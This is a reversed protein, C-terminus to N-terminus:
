EEKYLCIHAQYLRIIRLGHSWDEVGYRIEWSKLMKEGGDGGAAEGAEQLRGGGEEALPEGDEVLVYVVRGSFRFVKSCDDGGEVAEQLSIIDNAQDLDIFGLWEDTLVVTFVTTCNHRNM